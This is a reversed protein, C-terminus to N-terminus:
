RQELFLGPMWRSALKAPFSLRLPARTSESVVVGRETLAAVVRRSHGADKRWQRSKRGM